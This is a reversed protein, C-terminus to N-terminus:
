VATHREARLGRVKKVAGSPIFLPNMRIPSKKHPSATPEEWPDPNIGFLAPNIAIFGAGYNNHFFGKGTKRFSVSM